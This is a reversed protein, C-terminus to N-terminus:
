CSYNTNLKIFQSKITDYVKIINMIHKTKKKLCFVGYSIRMLSQLESTHEESRPLRGAFESWTSFHLKEQGDAGITAATARGDAITVAAMASPDKAALADFMRDVTDLVAQAEADAGHKEHQAFAPTAACLALAFITKLYM